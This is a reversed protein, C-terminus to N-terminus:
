TRSPTEYAVLGGLRRSNSTNHLCVRRRWLVDVLVDCAKWPGHLGHELAHPGGDSLGYWAGFFRDRVLHRRELQVTAVDEIEGPPLLVIRKVRGGIREDGRELIVERRVFDAALARDAKREGL